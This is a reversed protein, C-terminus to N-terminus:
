AKHSIGKYYILRKFFYFTVENIEIKSFENGAFDYIEYEKLNDEPYSIFAFDDMKLYFELFQKLSEHIRGPKLNDFNILSYINKTKM